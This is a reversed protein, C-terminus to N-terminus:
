YFLEDNEFLNFVLILTIPISQAIPPITPTSSSVLKNVKIRLLAVEERWSSFDPIHAECLKGGMYIKFSDIWDQMEQMFSEIVTIM